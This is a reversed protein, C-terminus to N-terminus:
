PYSFQSTQEAVSRRFRIYPATLFALFHLRLDM